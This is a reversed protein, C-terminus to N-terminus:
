STRAGSARGAHRFNRAAAPPPAVSPRHGATRGDRQEDRQRAEERERQRPQERERRGADVLAVRRHEVAEDREVARAHVVRDVHERVEGVRQRVRGGAEHEHEDGSIRPSGHRAPATTTSSRTVPALM